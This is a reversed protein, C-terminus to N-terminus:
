SMAPGHAMVVPNTFITAFPGLSLMATGIMHQLLQLLGEIGFPDHVVARYERLGLDILEDVLILSSPFSHLYRVEIHAQERQRAFICNDGSAIASQPLGENELSDITKWAAEYDGNDYNIMSNKTDKNKQATCFSCLFLCLLISSFVTIKKM